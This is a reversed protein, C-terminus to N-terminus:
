YENEAPETQAAGLAGFGANKICSQGAASTLYEAMKSAPSNEDEDARIVAYYYTALSYSGDAITEDSPEVGDVALLKLDLPGLTMQATNFYYYMSYGLAYSGPNEAACDAVDTLISAMAYSINERHIDPNIEGGGLFFKEMQAHSGSDNNRCYPVFAADEGGLESWNRYANDIYINRIQESSLGSISNEGNTFFVLSENAIPIFRLETGSQEALSIVDESPDPVIIIDAEGGILKKYSEITKSHAEPLSPHNFANEFLSIYVAQTIPYSSTSGDIVPMESDFGYELAENRAIAPLNLSMFRDAYLYFIEATEFRSLEELPAYLPDGNESYTQTSYGNHALQEYAEKAYDSIDAADTGTLSFEASPAEFGPLEKLIRYFMTNLEERTVTRSPYFYEDDSVAGCERLASVAECFWDSASVDSFVPEETEAELGFLRALMACAEARSVFMDGGFTGDPNGNVVGRSSLYNVYYNSYEGATDGFEIPQAKKPEINQGDGAFCYLYGGHSCSLPLVAGSATDAAVYSDYAEGYDSVAIYRMQGFDPQAAYAAAPLMVCVATCCALLRKLMVIGGLKNLM